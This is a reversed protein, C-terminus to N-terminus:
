EAEKPPPEVPPMKPISADPRGGYAAWMIEIPHKVQRDSQEELQLKAILCDSSWVPAEAKKLGDMLKQSGQKSLDYFQTKMGWTGDMCSCQDVLSVEAGPLRKLLDRSRYGIKQIKLHCPLHYAIKGVPEATYDERLRGEKRLKALYEMLDFAHSAVLRAANTGLYEPWEKKMMFSCTPGPAVIDCGSQVYRLLTQVNQEAWATARPVDGGDLAPMGCCRMEPSFVTFGNHELVEVAARGVQAENWQVSCTYFLVVKPGDVEIPEPMTPHTSRYWALFTPSSFTPLKRDRHIGVTAEMAVRNPRLTTMANAIGPITTGVRGIRDPDGLVQDQLPVGHERADIAKHRLMLRPFDVAFEHPPTYPCIPDCLKCQYCLDVVEQHVRLPLKQLAEHQGLIDDRPPAAHATAAEHNGLADVAVPASAPEEAGNSPDLADVADFLAPFSPCLNHCLRCGNCIEFVRKEEAELAARSWYLEDRPGPVVVSM